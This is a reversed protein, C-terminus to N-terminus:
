VVEPGASSSIKAALNSPPPEGKPPAEAKLLVGKPDPLGELPNEKPSPKGNPWV